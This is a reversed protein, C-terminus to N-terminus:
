YGPLFSDEFNHGSIAFHKSEMDRTSFSPGDCLRDLDLQSRKEGRSGLM